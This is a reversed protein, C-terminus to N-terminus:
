IHKSYFISGYVLAFCEAISLDIMRHRSTGAGIQILPVVSRTTIVASWCVEKGAVVPLKGGGLYAPKSAEDSQRSSLMNRLKGEIYGRTGKEQSSHVEGFCSKNQRASVM